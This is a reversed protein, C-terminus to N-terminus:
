IATKKVYVKLVIQAYVVGNAGAAVAKSSLNGSGSGSDIAVSEIETLYRGTEIKSIFNLVAATKGTISIQFNLVPWENKTETQSIAPSFDITVGTLRATSELFNIFDLPMKGEIFVGEIKKFGTEEEKAFNKFTWVASSRSEAVMIREKQAMVMKKYHQASALLPGIAGFFLGLFSALFLILFITLKIKFEM